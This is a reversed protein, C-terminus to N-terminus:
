PQNAASALGQLIPITQKLTEWTPKKLAPNIHMMEPHFLPIFQVSNNPFHLDHKKHLTSHIQHLAVEDSIFPKTSQTGLPFFITKSIEAIETILKLSKLDNQPTWELHYISPKIPMCSALWDIMKLLLISAEQALGNPPTTQLKLTSDQDCSHIFVWTLNKPTTRDNESKNHAVSNPSNPSNLQALARYNPLLFDLYSHNPLAM